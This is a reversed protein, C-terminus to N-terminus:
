GAPDSVFGVVAGSQQLAYIGGAVCRWPAGPASRLEIRRSAKLGPLDTVEALWPGEPSLAYRCGAADGGVTVLTAAAEGAPAAAVQAPALAALEDFIADESRSAANRWSAATELNLATGGSDLVLLAPTGTMEALGFRRAIDLNRGEGTQPVGVDVYVVEYREAILAAFRETELWGALARSDHCWNGGMVLLVRKDAAAARALAADVDAMADPTVAYSRAEPHAPAATEPTTACAALGLALGAAIAARIM